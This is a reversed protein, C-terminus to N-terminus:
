KPYRKGEIVAQGRNIKVVYDNFLGNEQIYGYLFGQHANRPVNNGYALFSKCMPPVIICDHYDKTDFSVVDTAAEFTHFHWVRLNRRYRNAFASAPYRGRYRLSDGHTFWLKGLKYIGHQPVVHFGRGKLNLYAEPEIIGELGPSAIVMDRIWAEHNGEIWVRKQSYRHMPGLVLEELKRYEDVLRTGEVLIPKGHNWHSVPGCNLQDGALIAVDPKFDQMFDAWVQIAKPDHTTRTVWKGGDHVREHGIHFDGAAVFKILNSM